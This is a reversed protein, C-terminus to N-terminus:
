DPGRFALRRIGPVNGQGSRIGHRPGAAARAAELVSATALATPLNRM